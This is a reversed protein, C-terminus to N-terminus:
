RAKGFENNLKHLKDNIFGLETRIARRDAWGTDKEDILHHLSILRLNIEKQVRHQDDLKDIIRLQSWVVVGVVGWISATVWDM